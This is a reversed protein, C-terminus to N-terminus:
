MRRLLTNLYREADQPRMGAKGLPGFTGKHPGKQVGSAADRFAVVILGEFAKPLESAIHGVGADFIRRGEFGRTFLPGLVGQKVQSATTNLVGRHRKFQKSPDNPNDRAQVAKSALQQFRVFTYFAHPRGRKREQYNLPVGDPGLMFGKPILFQPRPKGTTSLSGVRRGFFKIPFKKNGGRTNAPGEVGYNYRAWHKAKADLMGTNIFNLGDKNALYFNPSLIARYLVGGSLRNMGKRYSPAGKRREVRYSYLVALQAERAVENVANSWGQRRNIMYKSNQSFAQVAEKLDGTLGRIAGQLLFEFSIGIGFASSIYTDSTHLREADILRQTYRFGTSGSVSRFGGEGYHGGGVRRFFGSQGEIDEFFGM